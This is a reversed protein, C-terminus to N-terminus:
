VWMGCLILWCSFSIPRKGGSIDTTLKGAAANPDFGELEFDEDDIFQKKKAM